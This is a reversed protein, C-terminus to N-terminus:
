SFFGSPRSSRRSGCCGTAAGRGLGRGSSRLLALATIVLGATSLAPVFERLLLVLGLLVLAIGVWPFRQVSSWPAGGSSSADFWRARWDRRWDPIQARGERPAPDAV